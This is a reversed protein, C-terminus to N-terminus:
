MGTFPLLVFREKKGNSSYAGGGLRGSQGKVVESPGKKRAQERDLRGSM